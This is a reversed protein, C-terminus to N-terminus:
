FMHKVKRTVDRYHWVFSLLGHKWTVISYLRLSFKVNLTQFQICWIGLFVRKMFEHYLHLCILFFLYKLSHCLFLLVTILFIIIWVQFVLGVITTGTKLYTPAKLGKKELMDNRRCLDFSFGGKPPLDVSKTMSSIRILGSFSSLAFPHCFNNIFNLLYEFVLLVFSCFAKFANEFPLCWVVNELKVITTFCM